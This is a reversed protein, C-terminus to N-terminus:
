EEYNAWDQAATTELAELFGDDEVEAPEAASTKQKLAQIRAQKEANMGFYDALWELAKFKDPMKVKIGYQTQSIEVPVSQDAESLEKLKLVQRGADDEILEVYDSIDSFAIAVMKEFMDDEKMLQKSLREEKLRKIEERVVVKSLMKYGHANATDYSCHFARQYSVTANNTRVYYLCFLKQEETMEPTELVQKVEKVITEAKKRERRPKRESRENNNYVSTTKESRESQEKGWGYTSKWRRVTGEPVQLEEAIKKLPYGQRYLKLADATKANKARSM